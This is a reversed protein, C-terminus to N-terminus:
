NTQEPNLKKLFLKTADHNDILSKNSNRKTAFRKYRGKQIIEPIPQQIVILEM